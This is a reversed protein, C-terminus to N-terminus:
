NSSINSFTGRTFSGGEFLFIFIFDRFWNVKHWFLYFMPVSTKCNNLKASTPMKLCVNILMATKKYLQLPIKMLHSLSHCGKPQPIHFLVLLFFVWERLGCFTKIPLKSYIYNTFLSIVFSTILTAQLKGTNSNSVKFTKALFVLFIYIQFFIISVPLRM